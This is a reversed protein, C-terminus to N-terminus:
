GTGSGRGETKFVVTPEGHKTLKMHLLEQGEVHIQSLTKQDYILIMPSPHSALYTPLYQPPIVKSFRGGYYLLYPALDHETIIPLNSPAIQSAKRAFDTELYWKTRYGLAGSGMSGSILAAMMVLGIFARVPHTKHFSWTLMVGGALSVALWPVVSVWPNMNKGPVHHFALVLLALSIGALGLAHLALMKTLRLPGKKKERNRDYFGVLAWGALVCLFPIIPLLYHFRTKGSFSVFVLCVLSSLALTLAAPHRDRWIDRVALVLLLSWPLLLEVAALPFYM